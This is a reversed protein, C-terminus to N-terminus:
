LILAKEMRPTPRRINEAAEGSTHVLIRPQRYKIIGEFEQLLKPKGIVETM